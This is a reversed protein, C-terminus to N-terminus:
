APREGGAEGGHARGRRPGDRRVGRLTLRSPRGGPRGTAAAPRGKFRGSCCSPAGPGSGGAAPRPGPRSPGGGWSPPWSTSARAGRRWPAGGPGVASQGGSGRWTSDDAIAREPVAVPASKSREPASFPRTPGLPTSVPARQEVTRPTPPSTAAGTRSGASSFLSSVGRSSPPSTDRRRSPGGGHTAGGGPGGRPSGETHGVGPLRVGATM